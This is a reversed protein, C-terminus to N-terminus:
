ILAIQLQLGDEAEHDHIRVQENSGAADSDPRCDKAAVHGGYAHHTEAVYLVPLCPRLPHDGRERRVGAQPHNVAPIFDPKSRVGTRPLKGGFGPIGLRCYDVMIGICGPSAHM